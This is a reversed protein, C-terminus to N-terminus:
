RSAAGSSAARQASRIRAPSRRDSEAVETPQLLRRSRLDAEIEREREIQLIRALEINMMTVTQGDYRDFGTM